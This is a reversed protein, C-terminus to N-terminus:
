RLLRELTRVADGAEDTAPMVAVTMRGEEGTVPLPEGRLIAAAMDQYHTLWDAEHCDIMQERREDGDTIVVRLPGRSHEGVLM